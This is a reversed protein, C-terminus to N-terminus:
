CLGFISTNDVPEKMSLLNEIEYFDIVWKIWEEQCREKFIAFQRYYKSALNDPVMLFELKIWESKDTDPGEVKDMKKLNSVFPIPPNERFSSTLAASSKSDKSMTM